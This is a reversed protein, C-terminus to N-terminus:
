MQQRVAEIFDLVKAEIQDRVLRYVEMPQGVPDAVFWNLQRTRRSPLQLIGNLSMELLIVWDMRDLNVASLGKSTQQSIDIGKEWMAEATRNMIIGAPRVGASSAELLGKGYYNAFAEAM